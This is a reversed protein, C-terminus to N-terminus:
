WVSWVAIASGFNSLRPVGNFKSRQGSQPEMTMEVEEGWRREAGGGGGGGDEVEKKWGKEGAEKM